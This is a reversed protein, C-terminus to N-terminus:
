GSSRSGDESLGRNRQIKLEDKAKTWLLFTSVILMVAFFSIIVCTVISVANFGAVKENEVKPDVIDIDSEAITPAEAFGKVGEFM